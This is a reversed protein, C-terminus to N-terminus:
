YQSRRLEEESHGEKPLSRNGLWSREGWGRRGDTATSAQKIGEKGDGYAGIVMDKTCGYQGYWRREYPVFTVTNM